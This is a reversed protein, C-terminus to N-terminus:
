IIQDCGPNLESKNKGSKLDESLYDALRTHGNLKALAYANEFCKSESNLHLTSGHKADELVVDLCDGKGARACLQFATMGADSPVVFPTTARLNMDLDEGLAKSNTWYTMGRMIVIM